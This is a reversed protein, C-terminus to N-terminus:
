EGKTGTGLAKPKKRGPFWGSNRTIEKTPSFELVECQLLERRKAEASPSFYRVTESARLRSYPAFSGQRMRGLVEDHAEFQVKQLADKERERGQQLKDFNISTPCHLQQIRAVARDVVRVFEAGDSARRERLYKKADEASFWTRNRNAEKPKGLRLVLCLHAHVALGKESYRKKSSREARKCAAGGKRCIYRAFSAEEIRGHVGAEEFAELAAAQAHTLGPEASGKPFTWRGSNRTRVLLFEISGNRLRYCVAAVQECERLKRLHALRVIGNSRQSPPVLSRILLRSGPNKSRPDYSGLENSGRDDRADAGM